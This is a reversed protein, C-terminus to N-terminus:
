YHQLPMGGLMCVTSSSSASLMDAYWRFCFYEHKILCVVRQLLSTVYLLTDADAVSDRGRSNAMRGIVINFICVVWCVFQRPQYLLCCM